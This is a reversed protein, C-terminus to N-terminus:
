YHLYTPEGISAPSWNMTEKQYQNLQPGIFKKIKPPWEHVKYKPKRHCRQIETELISYDIIVPAQSLRNNKEKQFPNHSRLNQHTSSKELGLMKSLTYAISKPQEILLTYLHVTAPM